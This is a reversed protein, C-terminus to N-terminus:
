VSTMLGAGVIVVAENGIAPSLRGYAPTVNAALPPVVGYTLQDAVLRGGPSVSELAPTSDPVAVAALDKVDLPFIEADHLAAAAERLTKETRAVLAIRAGGADLKRAVAVGIGASGGTVLAVKREAM